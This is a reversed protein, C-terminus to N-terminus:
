ILEYLLDSDLSQCEFNQSHESSSQSTYPSLTLVRGSRGKRGERRMTMGKDAGQAPHPARRAEHSCIHFWSGRMTCLSLVFDFNKFRRESLDERDGFDGYDDVLAQKRGKTRPRNGSPPGM